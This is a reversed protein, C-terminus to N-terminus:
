IEKVKPSVDNEAITALEKMGRLAEGSITMMVNVVVAKAGDVGTAAM